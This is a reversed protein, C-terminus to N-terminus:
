KKYRILTAHNGMATFQMIATTEPTIAEEIKTPDLNLSLPDVDVFIPKLGNWLISHSTGVFSFPSTIVQGTIGLAQLGIILAVTGNLLSIHEVGLYECLKTELEKHFPGGNTLIKSEWTSKLYPIIEELPPLNPQTVHIPKNM